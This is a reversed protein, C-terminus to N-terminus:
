GYMEGRADIDWDAEVGLCHACGNKVMDTKECREDDSM